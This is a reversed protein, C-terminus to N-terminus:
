GILRLRNTRQKAIEVLTHAADAIAFEIAIMVSSSTLDTVGESSRQLQERLASPIM